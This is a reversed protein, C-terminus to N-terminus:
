AFREFIKYVSRATTDWSFFKVRDLGHSIMKQRLKEDTCISHLHAVLENVEGPDFFLAGNGAVEPLSAINSCIVPTGSAMAEIVPLGFGEYRSPYILANASAMFKRAVDAEVFGTLQIENRWPSNSVAQFVERTYWSPRGAIVLYFDSATDAKFKEYARILTLINKRPHIAGLYLFFPHGGFFKNRVEAQADESIPQFAPSVGNYVVSIKEPALDYGAILEKKSFDSVTIIHDAEKIFVPMWREYFRRHRPQLHLPNRLFSIDHVMSIKPVKLDLPLFGDPSFFLNPKNRLLQKKVPHNLWYRLLVPLRTPPFLSHGNVNTGHIFEQDIRRDFFYDFQDDPHDRVIRSMVENTVTGVGELRNKILHRANLAIRMFTAPKPVFYHFIAKYLSLRGYSVIIDKGTM